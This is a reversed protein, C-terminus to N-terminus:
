GTHRIPTGLKPEDALENMLADLQGEALALAPRPALSDTDPVHWYRVTGAYRAWHSEVIPRHTDEHMAIVLDSTEFDFANVPLPLRLQNLALVGRKRLQALAFPSMPGPNRTAPAELLARSLGQWPLRRATAYHNFLEECFRSLYHNAGCLFLLRRLATGSETAMIV